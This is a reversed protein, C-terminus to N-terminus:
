LKIIKEMWINNESEIMLIYVGSAFRTLDIENQMSLEKSLLISGAANRLSMTAIIPAVLNINLLDDTPNPYIHISNFELNSISVIMDEGDCDEDIGNNPIEEAEPNIDPNADDCDIFLDFGDEDFDFTSLMVNKTTNTLVVPNFDFYIGATNNIESEESISDKANIKYSVYGQSAEFNSTSDPLLIGKFEFTLYKDDELSTTLFENHSSNIVQFTTPDLYNDLTDLIVINIAAANGTNQFRITYVLQEDFLTYNGMREPNILKDNPDYSCQVIPNYEHSPSSQEGNVDSFDAVTTFYLQNGLPFGPPGPIQLKITKCITHQPFLNSFHWGYINPPIITDPPDIYNIDLINEDVDLWIMGDTITTGENRACVDFTSYEQCRIQNSFLFSSMDSISNVPIVGFYVSDINAMETLTIEYSSSDSTLEWDPNSMEDYSVTYSDFETYFINNHTLGVYADVGLPDITVYSGPLSLEGVDLIKNENVDYFVSYKIKGSHGCYFSVEEFSECGSKNDEILVPNGIQLYDCIVPQHCVSLNNNKKLILSSITLPALNNLGALSSLNENDNVNLEGNIASLGSLGDLNELEDNRFLTLNSGITALNELGDLNLLAYNEQIKMEGGISVLSNLGQLTELNYEDNINLDGEISMLNNLGELDTFDDNDALSLNGGISQLNEFGTLSNIDENSFLSLSGAIHLLGNFGNFDTIDNAVISLNGAISDLNELGIFNNLHNSRIYIDGGVSTLNQLGLFNELDNNRFDFRGNITTLTSLGSLDEVENNWFNLNEAILDLNELGSISELSDNDVIYLHKGISTIGSLPGLDNIQDSENFSHIILNCPIETLGPYNLPFNDVDSQSKLFIEDDGCSRYEYAGIDYQQDFKRPYGALDIPGGQSDANGRAITSDNLTYDGNDFDKFPNPPNFFVNGGCSIAPGIENCSAKDVIFNNINLDEEHYLLYGPSENDWCIINRLELETDEKWYICAGDDAGNKVFTCNVMKADPSSYNITGWFGYIAGGTNTASNQDFLSNYVFVDEVNVFYVAGGRLASNQTFLCRDLTYSVDYMFNTEINGSSTGQCYGAGGYSASNNRFFSNVINPHTNFYRISFGGGRDAMNNEFVCDNIYSRNCYIGGGYEEATNLNFITNTPNVTFAYVAGGHVGASNNELICNTLNGISETELYVAGGNEEAYNFSLTCNNIEFGHNTYIGGGLKQAPHTGNANGNVIMLGDLNLGGTSNIVHYCNDVNNDQIGIDGSLVTPHNAWDRDDMTPNGTNPFGGYITFASNGSKCYSFDKIEFTYERPNNLNCNTCSSPKYTGEAVWVSDVPCNSVFNLATQLDTFANNWSSGDNSGNASPNVYVINSNNPTCPNAGHYEYAGIDISEFIRENGNIDVDLGINIVNGEEGGNNTAASNYILELNGNELEMFPDPANFIVCNLVPVPYNLFCLEGITLKDTICNTFDILFFLHQDENSSEKDEIFIDQNSNGWFISNYYYIKTMDIFGFYFASGLSATNAAFTCNYVNDSDNFYPVYVAGGNNTANNQYFACGLLNIDSNEYHIAGGNEATNNSFWCNKFEPDLKIFTAGGNIANNNEFRCNEFIGNQAHSYVAGGSEASNNEFRGNKIDIFDSSNGSFYAGGDGVSTNNSFSCNSLQLSKSTSCNNCTIGAGNLSTGGDANGGNIFVGDLKVNGNNHNVTVVHFTNDSNDGLIGIAGSLITSYTEWDRDNLGPEGTNPFGGLVTIAKDILFTEERDAETCNTCNTPFYVGDAIWITDGIEADLLTQKFDGRAETWSSGDGTGNMKVHHVQAFLSIPILCLIILLNKM